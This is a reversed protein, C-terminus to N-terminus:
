VLPENFDWMEDWPRLRDLEVFGVGGSMAEVCERRKRRRRFVAVLDM